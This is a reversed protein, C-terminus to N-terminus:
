RIAILRKTHVRTYIDMIKLKIDEIPKGSDTESIMNKLLLDGVKAIGLRLNNNM